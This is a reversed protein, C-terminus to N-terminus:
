CMASIRGVVELVEKVTFPKPIFDLAGAMIAPKEITGRCSASCMILKADRDLDVIERIAEIGNKGPMLHDMITIEPRHQRYKEVAEDGQGAEAVVTYGDYELITRLINRIIPEDDVLMVTQCM